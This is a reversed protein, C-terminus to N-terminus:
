SDAGKDKHDQFRSWAPRDLEGSRAYDRYDVEPLVQQQPRRLGKFGTAIVTVKVRDELDQDITAGFIIVAEPDIAEGAIDAAEQVEFLSLDPGGTVNILLGTAGDIST